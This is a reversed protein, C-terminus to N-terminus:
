KKLPTSCVGIAIVPPDKVAPVVEIKEAVM